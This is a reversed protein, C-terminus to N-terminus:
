VDAISLYWTGYQLNCESVTGGAGSFVSSAFVLPILSAVMVLFLQLQQAYLIWCSCGSRHLHM